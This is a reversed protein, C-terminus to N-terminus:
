CIPSVAMMRTSIWWCHLQDRGSNDDGELWQRWRDDGELQKAGTGLHTKPPPSPSPTISPKEKAHIDLLVDAVSLDVTTLDSAAPDM